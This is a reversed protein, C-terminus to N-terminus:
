LPISIRQNKKEKWIMEQIQQRVIRTIYENVSPNGSLFEDMTIHQNNLNDIAMRYRAEREKAKQSMLNKTQQTHKKGYFGNNQGSCDRRKPIISTNTNNDM